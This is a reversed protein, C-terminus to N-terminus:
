LTWPERMPRHIMSNAKQSGGVIEQRVPDWTIKEGTRVAIDCLHSM